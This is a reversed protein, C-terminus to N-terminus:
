STPSKDFHAHFTTTEFSHDRVTFIQDQVSVASVWLLLLRQQLLETVQGGTRLVIAGGACPWGARHPDSADPPGSPMADREFRM